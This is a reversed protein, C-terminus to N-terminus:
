KILFGSRVACYDSVQTNPFNFYTLVTLSKPAISGAVLPQEVSIRLRGFTSNNPPLLLTKPDAVNTDALIIDGPWIDMQSPLNADVDICRRLFPQFNPVQYKFYNSQSIDWQTMNMQISDSPFTDDVSLPPLYRFGLVGTQIDMKPLYFHLCPSGTFFRHSLLVIGPLGAFFDKVKLQTNMPTGAADKLEEGAANDSTWVFELKPLRELAMLMLPFDLAAATGINNALFPSGITELTAQATGPPPTTAAITTLPTQNM